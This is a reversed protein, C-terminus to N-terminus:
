ESCSVSFQGLKSVMCNFLGQEVLEIDPLIKIFKTFWDGPKFAEPKAISSKMQAMTNGSGQKFQKHPSTALSSQNKTSTLWSSSTEMGLTDILRKRSPSPFWSRYIGYFILVIEYHKTKNHNYHNWTSEHPKNVPIRWPDPNNFGHENIEGYAFNEIKYFNRNSEKVWILIQCTDSCSLQLSVQWIYIHYEIALTHKQWYVPMPESLPKTGFFCCAM